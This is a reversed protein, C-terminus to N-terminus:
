TLIRADPEVRIRRNSRDTASGAVGAEARITLRDGRRRLEYGGLTRAAAGGVLAEGMRALARGRLGAAGARTLAAALVRDRLAPSAAALRALSLGHADLLRLAAEEELARREAALAAVRALGEAAGPGMRALAARARAREFRPDANSPDESWGIARARLWGRLAERGVDLLPRRFTGCPSVPPIASLPDVGGGRAVAMLVTEAQDDRTHGTLVAAGTASALAALLGLRARRLDAQAARPPTDPRLTRHPLGLRRAAGAVGAAEAAAEPRIRHDVTAVTLRGSDVSAAALHLLATSDSGGSVALM